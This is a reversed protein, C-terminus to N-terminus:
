GSISPISSVDPARPRRGSGGPTLQAGLWGDAIAGARDLAKPGRGGLWVELPDQVPRAATSLESFALRESQYEVTEGAWWKRMLGLNEELAEGRPNADLGLAQAEATGGLGTVFSLLLRGSTLQDLQALQKALLFPSLGLPIVNAGLRLRETRGAVTALALLPDLVPAIPLDSLWIGDFGEAEVAEAFGPLDGAALSGAHPGVAFRVKM